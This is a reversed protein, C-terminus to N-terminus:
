SKQADQFGELFATLNRGLDDSLYGGEQVMVTPLSLEGLLSAIRGFGATTIAFGQFPDGEFADLGLAIILAEPRFETLSTLSGDLAVLYDDDGTGRPLPINLNCGEGDGTGREDAYGWHFPYFREPDAHLSLTFVDSRDYFLDQTGNGHHVDVDVVAIRAYRERLASAAIASNGLYCFGAAYDRTAHHGPPRCLAYSAMEGALVNHAAQAATNASWLVSTWTDGSIPCSLDMQHVGAQGTASAPYGGSRPDPHIGPVTEESGGEIRLWRPHINQLYNLYRESHLDLAYDLGLEGPLQRELGADLAGQLLREARAPKEPHPVQAGSSFFTQPDHKLQEDAFVVKM